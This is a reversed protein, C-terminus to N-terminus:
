LGAEAAVSGGRMSLGPLAVRLTMKVFFRRWLVMAVVHRKEEEARLKLVYAAESLQREIETRGFSVSWPRHDDAIITM